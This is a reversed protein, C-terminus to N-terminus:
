PNQVGYYLVDIWASPVAGTPTLNGTRTQTINIHRTVTGSFSLNGTKTVFSRGGIYAEGALNLTGSLTRSTEIPARSVTGSFNLAGSKSRASKLARSIAGALNLIGATAGTLIGAFQGSATGSLNLTGSKTRSLNLARAISGIFSLGGARSEAYQAVASVVYSYAGSLNLTGSKVRILKKLFTLLGSLM